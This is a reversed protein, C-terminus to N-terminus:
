RVHLSSSPRRGERHAHHTAARLTAPGMRAVRSRPLRGALSAAPRLGPRPRRGPPEGPVRSLQDPFWPRALGKVWGRYTLDLDEPHRHRGELRRRGRDRPAICIGCTCNFPCAIAPGPLRRQSSSALPRRRADGDTDVTLPRRSTRILFISAPGARLGLNPRGHLKASSRRMLHPLFDAAAVHTPTPSTSLIAFYDLADEADDEHLAGGRQSGSRIPAQRTWSMSPGAGCSPVGGHAALPKLRYRLTSDDFSRSTREHRRPWDLPGGGRGRAAATARPKFPRFQPVWPCPAPEADPRLPAHGALPRNRPRPWAEKWSPSAAVVGWTLAPKGVFRAPLLV